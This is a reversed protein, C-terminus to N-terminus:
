LLAGLREKVSHVLGVYSSRVTHAKFQEALAALTRADKAAVLLGTTGKDLRHVIGPRIVGPESESPLWTPQPDLDGNGDAAFCDSENPKDQAALTPTIHLAPQRCVQRPIDEQRCKQGIGATGLLWAVPQAYSGWCSLQGEPVVLCAKAQVNSHASLHPPVAPMGTSEAEDLGSEEPGSRGLQLRVAPMGFRHLLANVLTGSYNGPAPHVVMGAAKNLVLLHEDEYVVDLLIDQM